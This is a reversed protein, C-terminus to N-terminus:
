YLKIEFMELQAWLTVIVVATALVNGTTDVLHSDCRGNSSCLGIHAPTM